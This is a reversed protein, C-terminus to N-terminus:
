RALEHALLQFRAMFRAMMALFSWQLRIRGNNEGRIEGNYGSRGFMLRITKAQQLLVSHAEIYRNGDTQGWTHRPSPTFRLLLACAILCVSNRSTARRRACCCRFFTTHTALKKCALEGSYRIALCARLPCGKLM